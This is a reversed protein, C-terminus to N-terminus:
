KLPCNASGPGNQWCDFSAYQGAPISTYIKIPDSDEEQYFTYQFIGIGGGFQATTTADQVANTNLAISPQTLESKIRYGAENCTRNPVDCGGSAWIRPTVEIKSFTGEASAEFRYVTQAGFTEAIVVGEVRGIEPAFDFASDQGIVQPTPIRTPPDPPIVTSLNPAGTGCIAHSGVLVVGVIVAVAIIPPIEGGPDTLNVPNNL